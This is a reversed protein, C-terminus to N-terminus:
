NAALEQDIIEKFADLPQAGSLEIGNIFFAPTGSVGLAKGAAIDAEVLAAKTGGDLCADFAAGDIGQIARAHAKLDEVGLSKQNAFLRDHMEWFKGQDAACAAAEAAKRAHEHFPLPFNRYVVRVKDGYITRIQQLTSEARSCFPCQFDSFEVITVPADAKGTAPGKAEVQVRDRRLLMKVGAASRLSDVLKGFAERKKQQHLFEVMRPKLVEFKAGAMRPDKQAQAWFAAIEEDTPPPTAQDVAQDILADADKLGRRKAEKELLERIIMEQLADHRVEYLKKRYESRASHLEAAAHEDLEGLTITRDGVVAVVTSPDEEGAKPLTPTRAGQAVPPADRDPRAASRQPDPCATSFVLALSLLSLLPIRM